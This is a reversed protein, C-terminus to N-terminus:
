KVIQVPMVLYTMKLGGLPNFIVPKNGENLQMKIEKTSLAKLGDMLYKINFAIDGSKGTIKAKISEEASGLDQTEVSLLIMQEEHNFVCKVLNNKQSTLVAVRELSNLFFKRDLSIIHKFQKPILMHYKPYDGDLKRITLKQKGLYFIVQVDDIQLRIVKSDSNNHIIKELERLARAPITVSFKDLSKIKTAKEEEYNSTESSLIAEVVSLRHGDTAAFELSDTTGKLHVGTLVQKLEDSSSAFLVGRLGEMITLVPLEIFENNEISPLPPFENASITRIQFKGSASKLYLLGTQDNKTEESTLSIQGEPLRSVIDNLLKAPLTTRGEESINADFSTEIGLSLDFATLSIKQKTADAIMLVNALIPHTPRIPVARSVLSLNNSFDSQSCVFKM